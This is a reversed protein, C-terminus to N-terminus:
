EVQVKMEESFLIRGSPRQFFGAKDANETGYLFAATLSYTGPM